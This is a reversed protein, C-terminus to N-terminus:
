LNITNSWIAVVLSKILFNKSKFFSVIASGKSNENSKGKKITSMIILFEDFEITGSGDLDVALM